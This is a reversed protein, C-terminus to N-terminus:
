RRPGRGRDGGRDGDRGRGRDGGGGGGRDGGPRGGGGGPRPRDRELAEEPTWGELVAQRSLRIKGNDDVNTVMVTLEDGLNAVDEVRNVRESALQSIHV